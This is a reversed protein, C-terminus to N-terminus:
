GSGATSPPQGQAQEHVHLPQLADCFSLSQSVTMSFAAAAGGGDIDDNVLQVLLLLLV